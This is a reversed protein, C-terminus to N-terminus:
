TEEIGILSAPVDPVGQGIERKTLGEFGQVPVGEIRTKKHETHPFVDSVRAYFKSSGLARYGNDAIWNQYHVYLDTARTRDMAPAEVYCERLFQREHDCSMRHHDKIRRGEASDPCGSLRIVEALGELAWQMVGPLDNEIIKLALDPDRKDEPIQVPFHLIRLRRWIGDSRDFFTPLSNGAMVFRARCPATYKDRGKKECEIMGGSVCEKFTGEIHHMAARGTDSPMDGCINIKAISLPWTQFREILCSVPVFSVNGSGVLASLIDNCVTKGNAGTGYQYFCVQYKTTDAILIGVMRRLLALNDPDPQVDALYKDWTFAIAEPNWEYSVFDPSFFDPSVDQFCAAGPEDAHAMAEAVQWVNVIKNCFAIWNQGSEGTSIFFPIQRTSPIGCLDNSRLNLLVSSVYHATAHARLDQRDRIYATLENQLDNQPYECWGVGPGRYQHWAGRYFQLLLRGKDDRLKDRAFRDATDAHQPAPPRGGHKGNEPSTAKRRDAQPTCFEAPKIDLSEVASNIHEPSIGAKEMRRVIAVAPLGEDYFLNAAMDKASGDLGARHSEIEPSSAAPACTPPAELTITENNM